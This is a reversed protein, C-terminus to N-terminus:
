SGEGVATFDRYHTDYSAEAKTHLKARKTKLTEYKSVTPKPHITFPSVTLLRMKPM